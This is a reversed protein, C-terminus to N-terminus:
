NDIIGAIAAFLCLGFVVVALFVHLIALGYTVRSYDPIPWRKLAILYFASPFAFGLCSVAIAALFDFVQDVSEILISLTAELAFLLLTGILYYSYKMDKYALGGEDENVQTSRQNEEKVMLRLGATERTVYSKATMRSIVSKREHQSTRDFHSQRGGAMSRKTYISKNKNEEALPSFSKGRTENAEMIMEDLDNANANKNM